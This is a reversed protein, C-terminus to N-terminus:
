TWVGSTSAEVLCKKHM